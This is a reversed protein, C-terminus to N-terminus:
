NLALLLSLRKLNRRRNFIHVFRTHADRSGAVARAANILHFTFQYKISPNARLGVRVHTMNVTSIVVHPLLFSSPFFYQTSVTLNEFIFVLATAKPLSCFGASVCLCIHTHTRSNITEAALSLYAPLSSYLM